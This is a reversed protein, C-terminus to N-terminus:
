ASVAKTAAPVVNAKELLFDITKTRVIGDVLAGINAGMLELVKERPQNYQRAIADLETEVDAPTAAIKEAAAIAEVILTTKVRKQAEEAYEARFTDETKGIATLYDDWSTGYRAVYQKSDALLSDIEREVMVQPLPVEHTASLKQFLQEVLARRGRQLTGADLRARLEARLADLSEAKSVRQAFADDLAPLEPEKVEHVTMTFVAEKGALEAAGYDAPFTVTVDKTDGASMGVIGAAFGPVFRSEDVQTQEGKATGGEFPEGDIKGEYDLTVTDGLQAPREVPVLVAADKRMSELAREFEDDTATEPQADLEIGVYDKVDIAPRVSVVARFRLPSGDEDPILEMQPRALPELKFEDVAQSYKEPVLDELAGDVIRATGYQQEYIKRPVKGPRFGPVKATRALKKYAAATAASFEEPSISIELEVQTPDLQKLTTASVRRPGGSPVVALMAGATEARLQKEADYHFRSRFVLNSSAVRAKALRHEVASSSGRGSKSPKPLGL